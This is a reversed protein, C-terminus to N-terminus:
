QRRRCRSTCCFQNEIETERGKGEQARRGSQNRLLSTDRAEARTERERSCDEIAKGEKPGRRQSGEIRKREGGDEQEEEDRM